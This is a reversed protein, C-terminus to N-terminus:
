PDSRAPRTAGARAQPEQGQEQGQIKVDRWHMTIFAPEKEIAQKADKELTGEVEDTQDSSMAQGTFEITQGANIDIMEHKPVDERVIALAKGGSEDEIRFARDSIVETVKAQGRIEKGMYKVPALVYTSYAVTTDEFPDLELAEIKTADVYLPEQAVQTRFAPHFDWQEMAADAEPMARLTGSLSVYDGVDVDELNTGEAPAVFIQNSHSWGVWLGNGIKSQVPIADLEVRQGEMSEPDPMAYLGWVSVIEGEPKDGESWRAMEDVKEIQTAVLIPESEFEAELQSDLDWTLEREIDAVVLERVEGTVILRTDDSLGEPGLNIPSKTLVLLDNDFIWNNGELVFSRDSYIEDAEGVLTVTQGYFKNPQEEVAEVTAAGPAQTETEDNRCGALACLGMALLGLKVTSPSSDFMIDQPHVGYALPSRLWGGFTPM